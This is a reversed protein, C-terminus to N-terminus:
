NLFQLFIQNERRNASDKSALSRFVAIQHTPSHMITGFIRNPKEEKGFKVSNLFPQGLVLDQDGAEVMFIPHRTKLGGIAVQIDECLGFFPRSYGTHSIM